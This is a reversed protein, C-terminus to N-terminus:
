AEGCEWIRMIPVIGSFAFLRSLGCFRKTRYRLIIDSQRDRNRYPPSRHLASQKNGQHKNRRHKGARSPNRRLGFQGGGFSDGVNRSRRSLKLWRIKPSGRDLWRSRPLGRLATARHSPRTSPRQSEEVVRHASRNTSAPRNSRLKPNKGIREVSAPCKTGAPRAM